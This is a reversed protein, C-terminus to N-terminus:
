GAAQQLWLVLTRAIAPWTHAREVRRRGAAGMERARDPDALLGAVAEAVQSVDRGDVLTGTEGDVLAERVGGSDGVVVPRGCAAAELFVNGWGEVELGGLRTRCPMAFVDGLAYYRPLDGESVQGAFVVSGSPADVALGRLRAEYPGGGVIVLTAGPVRARVVRMGQILMDQGKRAVLRSVCVVVPRDGLGHRERLDATELGPHFTALDAGPYLVSVPVRRPVATRVTRAIFASCMVPVRDARSTAYRMAAHTGPAISLWYEFGHAASLYPVGAKALRPGLMALPYTAGFLVVEAETARVATELRQGVEPTPWLFPEPQRLVRYPAGADFQAGDDHSPCFVSIRDSPLERVLAELTRQIGGVSPPYDNTVLLTRPVDM